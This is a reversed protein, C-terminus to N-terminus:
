ETIVLEIKEEKYTQPLKLNDYPLKLHGYFGFNLNSSFLSFLHMIEALCDTWKGPKM